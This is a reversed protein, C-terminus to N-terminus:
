SDEFHEIEPRFPATIKKKLIAEWDMKSFWMHNKIEKFGFRKVPDKIFLGDLLDKVLPSLNNPYKVHGYKIKDFLESRNSCYFPPFGTLMEYMICGFTWWDVKKGHGGRHLVEPALYEPTGCVSNADHNNKVGIKSLGFDTM